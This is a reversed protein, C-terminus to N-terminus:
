EKKEEKKKEINIEVKEPPLKEEKVQEGKPFKEAKASEPVATFIDPLKNRRKAEIMVDVLDAEKEEENKVM